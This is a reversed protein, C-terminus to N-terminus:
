GDIHTPPDAIAFDLPHLDPGMVDCNKVPVLHSSFGSPVYQAVAVCRQWTGDPQIPGDCKSIFAGGYQCGAAAPPACTILAAAMLLGAPGAVICRNM